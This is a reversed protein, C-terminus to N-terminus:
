FQIDLSFSPSRGETVLLDTKVLSYELMVLRQVL